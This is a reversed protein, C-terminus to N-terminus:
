PLLEAPVHNGLARPGGSVSPQEEEKERRRRAIEPLNIMVFAGADVDNDFSAVRHFGDDGTVVISVTRAADRGIQDLRLNGEAAHWSPEWDVFWDESQQAASWRVVDNASDSLRNAHDAIENSKRASKVAEAAHTNATTASQTRRRRDATQSEPQSGASQASEFTVCIAVWAPWAPQNMAHAYRVFLM